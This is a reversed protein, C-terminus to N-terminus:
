GTHTEPQETLNYYLDATKEVENSVLIGHYAHQNLWRIFLPLSMDVTPSIYAFDCYVSYVAEPHVCKYKQPVFYLAIIASNCSIKPIEHHHLGVM